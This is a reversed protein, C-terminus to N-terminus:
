ISQHLPNGKTVSTQIIVSGLKLSWTSAFWAWAFTDFTTRLTMLREHFCPEWQPLCRHQFDTVWTNVVNQYHGIDLSRLSPIGKAVILNAALPDVGALHEETMAILDNLTTTAYNRQMNISKAVVVPCSLGHQPEM